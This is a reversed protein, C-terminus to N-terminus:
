RIGTILQERRKVLRPLQDSLWICAGLHILFPVGFFYLYALTLDNILLRYAIVQHVFAIMVLGLGIGVAIRNWRYPAIHNFSAFWGILAGTLTGLLIAPIGGLAMGFLLILLAWLLPSFVGGVDQQVETLLTTGLLASFLVAILSSLFILLSLLSPLAAYIFAAKAAIRSATGAGVKAWQWAIERNIENM